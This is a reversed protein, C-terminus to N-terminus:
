LSKKSEKGDSTVGVHNEGKFMLVQRHNLELYVVTEVM